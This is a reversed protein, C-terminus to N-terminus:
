PGSQSEVKLGGWFAFVRLRILPAEPPGPDATSDVRRGGFISFGSVRVAVGDPVILHTGGVLAVRTITIGDRAIEAQRLDIHCGGIVSVSIVRKAPRWRGTLKRGGLIGVDITRDGTDSELRDSSRAVAGRDGMQRAERM